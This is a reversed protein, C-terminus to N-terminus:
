LPKNINAYMEDLQKLRQDYAQTLCSLNGGCQRRTKLWSQQADQIAGRGGMSFLGKLFQYKTAMEVDKDNLSLHACIAKEDEARAKQCDFSAASAALPSLLALTLILRKM